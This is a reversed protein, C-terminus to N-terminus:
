LVENQITTFYILKGQHLLASLNKKTILDECREKMLIISMKRLLEQSNAKFDKTLAILLLVQNYKYYKYHAYFRISFFVVNELDFSKADIFFAVIKINYKQNSM